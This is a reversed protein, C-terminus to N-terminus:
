ILRPPSLSDALRLRELVNQAATQGRSSPSSGGVLAEARGVSVVVGHFGQKRTSRIVLDIASISIPM